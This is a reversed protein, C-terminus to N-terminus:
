GVLNQMNAVSMQPLMADALFWPHEQVGELTLREAPNALLMGQLLDLAEESVPSVGHNRSEWKRAVGRLKGAMSIDRYRKDDPSAWAFPAGTGYLMIALMIGCAWLDVAYGDFPVNQLLEPALYLLNTGCSAQPSLLSGPQDDDLTPARLSLGLGVIYCDTGRLLVSQLSLDHHCLGM